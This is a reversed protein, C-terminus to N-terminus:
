HYLLHVLWTLSKRALLTTDARLIIQQMRKAVSVCIMEKRLCVIKQELKLDNQMRSLSWRLIINLQSLLSPDSAKFVQDHKRASLATSLNWNQDTLPLVSREFSPSLCNEFHCTM